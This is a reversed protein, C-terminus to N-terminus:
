KRWDPYEEKDMIVRDTKAILGDKEEIEESDCQAEALAVLEGRVTMFAILDGESIDTSYEAVGNSYLPAGNCIASVASNKLVIKGLHVVCDELPKIIRRIEDEEGHNKWLLYADHLEQLIVNDDEKFPVAETRRLEAMHAGNTHKGIDSCLKRIYTGAECKVRFLFNRGDQELIDFNYVTRERKQRKVASKVPPMQEIRGTFKEALEKMREMTIDSHIQVVGIYEKMTNLAPMIKTGYNIAIPLVGSVKPDLTGGHGTKKAELIDKVWLVVDRSTPGQPKDVVVLSNQLLEKISRDKPNKGYKPQEEHLVVFKQEKM